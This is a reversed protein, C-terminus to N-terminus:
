FDFFNRKVIIHSSALILMYRKHHTRWTVTKQTLANLEFLSFYRVLRNSLALAPQQARSISRTNLSVVIKNKNFRIKRDTLMDVTLYYDGNYYYLNGVSKTYRRYREKIYVLPVLLGSSWTREKKASLTACFFAQFESKQWQLAEFM